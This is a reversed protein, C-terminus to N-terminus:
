KPLVKAILDFGLQSFLLLSVVVGGHEKSM